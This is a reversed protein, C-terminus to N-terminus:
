RRRGRRGHMSVPCWVSDKAETPRCAIALMTPITAFWREYGTWENDPGSHSPLTPPEHLGTVALGNRTLLEIYWSLPGAARAQPIWDGKSLAREDTWSCWTRWSPMTPRCRDPCVLPLTSSTDILLRTGSSSTVTAPCGNM